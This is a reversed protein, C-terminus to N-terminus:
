STLEGDSIERSNLFHKFDVQIHPLIYTHWLSLEEDRKMGTTITRLTLLLFQRPQAFYSGDKRDKPLHQCTHM